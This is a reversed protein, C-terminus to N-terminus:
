LSPVESAILLDSRLLDFIILGLFLLHSVLESHVGGYLLHGSNPYVETVWGYPVQM